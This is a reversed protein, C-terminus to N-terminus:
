GAAGWVDLVRERASAVAAAVAGTVVVEGGLTSAGREPAPLDLDTPLSRRAAAFGNRVTKRLWNAAARLATPASAPPWPNAVTPAACHFAIATTM